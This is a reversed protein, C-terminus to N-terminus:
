LCLQPLIMPFSCIQLQPIQVLNEMVRIQSISTSQLDLLSFTKALVADADEKAELHLIVEDNPRAAFKYVM